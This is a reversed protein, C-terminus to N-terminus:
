SSLPPRIQHMTLAKVTQQHRWTGATSGRALVAAAIPRPATVHPRTTFVSLHSSIGVAYSLRLRHLAARFATVDGFEADALVATLTLGAARAQRLLSLALRGKEQFRVSAPIRAQQRASSTMWEEPLYLAAGLCWARAGTWLATTVAVQCNAIKGLAGCYQRAV